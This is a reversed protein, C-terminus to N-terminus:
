NNISHPFIPRNIAELLKDTDKIFALEAYKDYEEREAIGETYRLSEELDTKSPKENIIITRKSGSTERSLFNLEEFIGLWHSVANESINKIGKTHQALQANTLTIEGKRGLARLAKYFAVLLERNPCNESLLLENLNKDRENYLLHIYAKEGNRGARGALQNYEECSFSM